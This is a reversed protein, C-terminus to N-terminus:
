AWFHSQSAGRNNLRADFKIKGLMSHFAAVDYFFVQTRITVTVNCRVNFNGDEEQIALTASSLGRFQASSIAHLLVLRVPKVDRSPVM